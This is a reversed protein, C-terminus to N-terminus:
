VWSVRYGLMAETCLSPIQVAYTKRAFLGMHARLFGAFASRYYNSKACPIGVWEFRAEKPGLKWVAVDSGKWTLDRLRKALGLATWPSTGLERSLKVIVGLVSHHIREAVEAGIEEVAAPELHLADCAAYHAVALDIPLWHGPTIGLMAEHQTAPLGRLYADQHGRARLAQISSCLLTSRVHTSPSIKERLVDFSVYAQERM